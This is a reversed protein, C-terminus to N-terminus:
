GRKEGEMNPEDMEMEPFGEEFILSQWRSAFCKHARANSVTGTGVKKLLGSKAAKIIVGGWARASPPLPLGQGHAFARVEEAMFVAHLRAYERVFSLAESTWGPAAKEANDIARAIGLQKLREAGESLTLQTM